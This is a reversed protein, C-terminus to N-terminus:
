LYEVQGGAALFQQLESDSMEYEGGTEFQQNKKKLLKSGVVGAGVGLAVHGWPIDGGGGFTPNQKKGLLKSGFYGAGAGAAIYGWPIDNDGGEGFQPSKKKGLLKSGLYGAGAGAAVYGWPINGGIGFTPTQKKGLFKSGLYGAGAGAAIYGWPIDGGEGFTVNKGNFQVPTYANANAGLGQENMAIDGQESGTAKFSADAMYAADRAQQDTSNNMMNAIAGAAKFAGTAKNKWSGKTQGIDQYQENSGGFAFQKKNMMSEVPSVIAGLGNQQGIKEIGRFLGAIPIAKGITDKATNIGSNGGVAFTPAVKNPDEEPTAQATNAAGAIAGAKGGFLSGIGGAGGAGGAGGGIGPTPPKAQQMMSAGVNMMKDNMSKFMDMKKNKDKNLLYLGLGGIAAAGLGVKTGTSMGGESFVDEYSGGEGFGFPSAKKAGIGGAVAPILALAAAGIGVKAGTSLGGEGFQPNNINLAEFDRRNQEAREAEQVALAEERSYTGGRKIMDLNAQVHDESTPAPPTEVDEATNNVSDAKVTPDTKKEKKAFFDQVKAFTDPTVENGSEDTVPNGAADQVKDVPGVTGDPRYGYTRVVKYRKNLGFLGGKYDLSEELLHYGHDGTNDVAGTGNTGKKKKASFDINGKRAIKNSDTKKIKGATNSKSADAKTTSKNTKTLAPAEDDGERKDMQALMRQREADLLPPGDDGERANMQVLMRQREAEEREAIMDAKGEATLMGEGPFLPHPKTVPTPAYAQTYYPVYEDTESGDGFFFKPASQEPPVYNPNYKREWEMKGPQKFKTFANKLDGMAKINAEKAQDAYKDQQAVADPDYGAAANVAADEESQGAGGWNGGLTFMPYMGAGVGGQGYGMGQGGQERPIGDPQMQMQQMQMAYARGLEEFYKAEKVAQNNGALHKTFTQAKRQIVADTSENQNYLGPTNNNKRKM